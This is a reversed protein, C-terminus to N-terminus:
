KSSPETPSEDLWQQEADSLKYPEVYIKQHLESTPDDADTMYRYAWINCYILAAFPFLYRAVKIYFVYRSLMVYDTETKTIPNKVTLTQYNESKLFHLTEGTRRAKTVNAFTVFKPTGKGFEESFWPEKKPEKNKPEKNVPEKKPVKISIHVDHHRVRVPWVRRLLVRGLM